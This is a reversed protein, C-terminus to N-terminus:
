EGARGDERYPSEFPEVFLGRECARERDVGCPEPLGLYMYFDWGFHVFANSAELRCWYEERLLSQMVPPLEALELRAGESPASPSGKSSEVGRASLSRVGAAQLFGVASDIYAREVLEYAALTLVTGGCESGVESFMIWDDRTYHGRENRHAPDYKTVRYQFM